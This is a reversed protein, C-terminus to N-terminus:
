GYDENLTLIMSQHVGEKSQYPRIKAASPGHTVFLDGLSLEHMQMIPAAQPNIQGCM